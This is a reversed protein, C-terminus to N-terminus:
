LLGHLNTIGFSCTQQCTYVVASPRCSILRDISANVISPKELHKGKFCYATRDSNPHGETRQPIVVVWLGVYTHIHSLKLMSRVVYLWVIAIGGRFPWLQVLMWFWFGANRLALILFSLSVPNRYQDSCYLYWYSLLHSFVTGVVSVFWSSIPYCHSIYLYYGM